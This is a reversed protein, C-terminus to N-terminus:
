KEEFKAKKLLEIAEEPTVAVLKGNKHILVNRDSDEDKRKSALDILHSPDHCMELFGDNFISKIFKPLNAKELDLFVRMTAITNLAITLKFGYKDSMESFDECEVQNEKLPMIKNIIENCINLIGNYEAM